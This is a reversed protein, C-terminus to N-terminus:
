LLPGQQAPFAGSFCQACQECAKATKDMATHCIGSPMSGVQRFVKLQSARSLVGKLDEDNRQVVFEKFPLIEGGHQDNKRGYGRSVYLVRGEHVNISEKYPSASDAILKMYLNTRLRHEPLPALLKDFEEAAVTKLEVPLLKPTGVDFLLDLSGSVGFEMSVVVVERYEWLCDKSKVCGNAPRKCMTRTDGCRRCKWDGVAADGAWDEILQQATRSGMDYTLRLATAVYGGKGKKVGALDLFAERRPCFNDKTIDSAHLVERSRGEEYRGMRKRLVEIISQKPANVQITAQKLWGAKITPMM